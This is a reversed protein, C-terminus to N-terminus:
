PLFLSVIWGFLSPKKKPKIGANSDILKPVERPRFFHHDGIIACPQEGIAWAPRFQVVSPNYYHTAGNTLDYGLVGTVADEAIELAMKFEPDDDTVSLLKKRNPDYFRWCSFQYASVCIEEITNGWWYIKKQKSVALRNLIVHAVAEMGVNGQNRAEGWETRALIETETM